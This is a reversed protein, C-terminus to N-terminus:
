AFLVALVDHILLLIPNADQIDYPRAWIKHLDGWDMPEHLDGIAQASCQYVSTLMIVLLHRLDEKM